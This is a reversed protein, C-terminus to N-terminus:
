AGSEVATGSMGVLFSDQNEILFILVEQSIQRSKEEEIFDEGAKVPSLIAPHFVAALRFSTMRNTECKSAFVALLDLLYLLLQRSLPPLLTIQRQYERIAVDEEFSSDSLTTSFSSYPRLPKQFAEYKELPIVPEPSRLLYRLLISAADHLGRATIHLSTSLLRLSRCAFLPDM